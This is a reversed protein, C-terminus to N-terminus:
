LRKHPFLRMQLCKEVEYALSDPQLPLRPFHYANKIKWSIHSAKIKSIMAGKEIETLDPYKMETQVLMFAATRPLNMRYSCPLAKGIRKKM